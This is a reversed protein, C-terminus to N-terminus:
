AHVRAAATSTARTRTVEGHRFPAVIVTALPLLSLAVLGWGVLTGATSVLSLGAVYFGAVLPAFFGISLSVTLFRYASLLATAALGLICAIVICAGYSVDNPGPGSLAMAGPGALAVIGTACIVRGPVSVFFNRGSM